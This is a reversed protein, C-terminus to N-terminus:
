QSGGFIQSAYKDYWASYEQYRQLTKAMTPADSTVKDTGDAAKAATSTGLFDLAALEKSQKMVADLSKTNTDVVDQLTIKM